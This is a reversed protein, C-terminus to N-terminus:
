VLYRHCNKLCPLCVELKNKVDEYVEDLDGSCNFQHALKTVGCSLICYELM